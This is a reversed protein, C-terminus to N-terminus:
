KRKHSQSKFNPKATSQQSHKAEGTELFRALADLNGEWFSRYTELWDTAAQLPKAALEIEHVRGMRRRRVLGARELVRLHRSVAPASVAFPRAVRAVPASGQKLGQLIRRRTPDALAAFITDLSASRKVM